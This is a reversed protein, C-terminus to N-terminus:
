GTRTAHRRATRARGSALALAAATLLAPVVAVTWGPWTGPAGAALLIATAAAAALGAGLLVAFRTRADHTGRRPPHRRLEAWHRAAERAERRARLAARIRLAATLATGAAALAAPLRWTETLLLVAALCAVTAWGSLCAAAASRRSDPRDAGARVEALAPLYWVSGSLTLLATGLALAPQAM